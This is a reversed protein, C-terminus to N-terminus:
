WRRELWDPIEAASDVVRDDPLDDFVGRRAEPGTRVAVFRIGAAEAALRDEHRDGVYIADRQRGVHSWVPEFCRPDPKPAPQDENAFIGHFMEAAIGAARM